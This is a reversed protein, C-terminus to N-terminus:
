AYKQKLYNHESLKEENTLIKTMQHDGQGIIVNEVDAIQPEGFKDYLRRYLDCDLLWSMREDFLLNEHFHNRFTLASPSGLKNNGTIIDDTWKPHPNTNCGTILWETDDKLRLIIDQLAYDNSLHDDLYLIKIFEGESRRIAENTNKAMGKNPNRFYKIGGYHACISEILGDESNDTVVIEFDQSTQNWLADLSRRLFFERGEMEHTPIAVTLKM